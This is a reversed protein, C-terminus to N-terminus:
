LGASYSIGISGVTNVPDATAWLLLTNTGAPIVQSASMLALSNVAGVAGPPGTIGTTGTSGSPGTGIPGTTGTFGSPGIGGATLAAIMIRSTNQVIVGTLDSYYIGFKSGAPLILSYSNTFMNTSNSSLGYANTLSSGDVGIFSTGGASTNLLVSYEILLPISVATTNTFLGPNSGGYNYVIGM